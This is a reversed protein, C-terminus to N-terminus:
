QRAGCESCENYTETWAEKDVVTVTQEEYVADHHVTKYFYEFHYSTGIWFGNEDKGRCMLCHDGISVGSWGKPYDVFGCNNCVNAGYDLVREDYAEQVCM